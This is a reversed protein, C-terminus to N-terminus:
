GRQQGTTVELCTAMLELYYHRDRTLDKNSSEVKEIKEFLFQALGYPSEPRPDPGLVSGVADAALNTAKGGIQKLM